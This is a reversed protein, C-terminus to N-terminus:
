ESFPWGKCREKFINILIKKRLIKEMLYIIQEKSMKEIEDFRMNYEELTKNMEYIHLVNLFPLSSLFKYIEYNSYSHFFKEIKSLDFIEESTKSIILYYILSATEEESFSTFIM